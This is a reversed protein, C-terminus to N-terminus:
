LTSEPNIPFHSSGSLLMYMSVGLSWIDISKNYPIGSIIEPAAYNLTGVYENCLENEQVKTAFGFDTLQLFENESKGLFLINEPKIDRHCIQNEHLYKLALLASRIVEKVLDEDLQHNQSNNLINKMDAMALPMVLCKYPPYDFIEKAQIIFPCKCNSMLDAETNVRDTIRERHKILKLAFQENTKKNKAIYVVSNKTNDLVKELQYNHIVEGINPVNINDVYYLSTM